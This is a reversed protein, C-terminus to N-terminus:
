KQYIKSAGSSNKEISAPNGTYGIKSAGSAESVLRNTVFLEVKSAGSADVTANDAKLSQADIASAGSVDITLSATEGNVNVKSAGSTDIDLSSNRVGSLNLKSAGSASLSEINPASIRISIPNHSKLRESTSIKLVGSVVETEIHQLLNDDATVEIEFDKGATIDVHFVGGVDIGEFGGLTRRESAATGSGKIGSNFSFNFIKGSARGFSFVNSLVVGIAIAVIFVIIGFKKM